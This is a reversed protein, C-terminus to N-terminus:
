NLQEDLVDKLAMVPALERGLHRYQFVLTFLRSSAFVKIYNAM